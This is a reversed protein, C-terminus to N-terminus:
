KVVEYLAWDDELDRICLKLRGSRVEEQCRQYLYDSSSRHVLMYSAGFTDRVAPVFDAVKGRNISRWLEYRERSRAVFFTPDLGILFDCDSAYFLLHCYDDWRDHYIVKGHAQKHDQLWRAAREIEGRDRPRLGLGSGVWFGVVGVLMLVTACLPVARAMLPARRALAEYGRSALLGDAWLGFALASFPGVYEIFRMNLLFMCFVGISVGGTLVAERSPRWRLWAALLPMVMPAFLAAFNDFLLGRGGMEELERGLAIEVHNAYNTQENFVVRM